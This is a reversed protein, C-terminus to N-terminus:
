AAVEASRWLETVVRVGRYFDRRRSRLLESRFDGARRLNRAAQDNADVTGDLIAAIRAVLQTVSGSDCLVGAALLEPIGGVRTAVCPLGRAMAELLARPLGETRSALVFLDARDLQAMVEARKLQSTFHAEVGLDIALRRLEGLYRGEGIVILECCRGRDRLERLARILVDVGKYRQALSGVTILRPVAGPAWTRPRAAIDSGSLEISSYHATFPPPGLLEVDSVSWQTRACPYRQQLSRETVYAAGAAAACLRQQSRTLLRRIVPRMPIDVVGPAFTDWPDGVVEVGYPRRSKLLPREVGLALVSGLRLILANQESALPRVATRVAPWRLILDRAGVYHPVGRLGVRPGDVRVMGRGPEPVREERGVIAVEDFEDLYRTWFEYPSANAWVSGDGARCFRTESLVALKM